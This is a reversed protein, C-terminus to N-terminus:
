DQFTRSSEHISPECMTRLRKVLERLVIFKMKIREVFLTKILLRLGAPFFNFPLM